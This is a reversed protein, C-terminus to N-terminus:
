ADVPFEWADFFPQLTLDGLGAVMDQLGTAGFAAFVDMIGEPAVLADHVEYEVPVNMQLAGIPTRPGYSVVRALVQRYSGGELPLDVYFWKAGRGAITQLWAEFIAIKGEDWAYIVPVRATPNTNILRGRSLGSDFPTREVAENRQYSFGERLISSGLIEKPFYLATM